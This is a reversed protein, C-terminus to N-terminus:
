RSATILRKRVARVIEDIQFPSLSTPEKELKARWTTLVKHKGSERLEQNSEDAIQSITVDWSKLNM